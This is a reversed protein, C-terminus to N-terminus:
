ARRFVLDQLLGVLLAFSGSRRVRPIDALAPPLTPWREPVGHLIVRPVSGYYEGAHQQVQAAPVWTTLLARLPSGRFATYIWAVGAHWGDDKGWVILSAAVGRAGDAVGHVTVLPPVDPVMGALLEASPMPGYLEAM